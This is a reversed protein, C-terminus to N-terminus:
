RAKEVRMFSANCGMRKEEFLFEACRFDGYTKGADTSTALYRKQNRMMGRSNYHIVGNGDEILTGEGTGQQVPASAHWTRGHDDSYISNNFCCLVAEEWTTYRDTFIRSPCLLRGAYPGHRLQIGHASGHCFGGIRLM